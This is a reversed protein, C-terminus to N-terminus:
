KRRLIDLTHASAGLLEPRECTSLHYQIFLEYTEEDMANLTQRMYNAPGDAAVIQIRRVDAAKNIAEIDESTYIVNGNEDVLKYHTFYGTANDVKNWSLVYQGKSNTVTFKTSMPLKVYPNYTSSYLFEEYKPDLEKYVAVRTDKAWTNEGEATDYSPKYDSFDNYFTDAKLDNVMIIGYEENDLGSINPYLRVTGDAQKEYILESAVTNQFKDTIISKTNYPILIRETSGKESWKFGNFNIYSNNTCKLYLKVSVVKGTCAAPCLIIKM